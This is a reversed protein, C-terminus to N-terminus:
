KNEGLIRKVTLVLESLHYPKVLFADHVIKDARERVAEHNLVTSFILHMSKGPAKGEEKEQKRLDETLELGEFDSPLRIDVILLDFDNEKLKERAEQETEATEVNYGEDELEGGIAKQYAIDDEVLLIKKSM